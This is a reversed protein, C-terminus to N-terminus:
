LADYRSLFSVVALRTCTKWPRFTNDDWGTTIGNEAAWSIAKDFAPNNTLDKFGAKAKPEPSGAYRWLFTVIAARNCTNWPRFTNDAAWGTTIGEEAAWSIAKNFDSNETMDKFGAMKKPEPEGAMRWLFTVVAARNCDKMAGFTGDSYGTTIGSDAAWYVYDYYFQKEPDTVDSFLVQVTITTAAEKYKEAAAAKVTITATGAFGAEVTVKGQTDVTVKEKDSSYTLAGGSLNETVNIQASQANKTDVNLTIDEAKVSGDLHGAPTWTINGGYNQMVRKNWTENDYPYTATATVGYFQTGSGMSGTLFTPADGKFEISSLNKCGQFAADGISTVGAPITLGTLSSCLGFAYGGIEKLSEPLVVESLKTFSSFAYYGINTVGNEVVVKTVSDSYYGYDERIEYWSSGSGSITLVGDEYKWKLGDSSEGSDPLIKHELRVTYTGTINNHFGTSLYYQKGAELKQVVEFNTGDDYRLAKFDADYFYGYANKNDATYFRYFDTEKPVFSYCATDGRASITATTDTDLEIPKIEDSLTNIYFYVYNSNGYEDHVYCRYDQNSDVAIVNISSSTEGDLSIYYREPDYKQWQYTLEGHKCSAEAKLEVNEGRLAFINTSDEANAVTFENDVSVTFSVTTRNGYKDSVECYFYSYGRVNEVTYTNATAGEIPSYGAEGNKYWQYSIDGLSCSASVEMVANGGPEVKVTSGPIARATFSNEVYVYFWVTRSNKYEDSVVCHYQTRENVNEATCTPGVAGEVPKDASDFWQYNISGKNCSAEVEMVASEGPEVYIYSGYAASANLGNDTYVNFWVRVYNGYKDSVQCYYEKDGIVNEATYAAGTAGKLWTGRNYDYWAYTIEGANCTAEVEMTASEGPTIHIAYNGVYTASLNNEIHVYYGIDRSNGYKDSVRCYYETYGTINEATYTAGTEGEIQNWNNDNWVYWEYTIEGASCTAEVEMKVSEGPMISINNDGVCDANFHNEIYIHFYVETSNGYKDTAKCIYRTYGTINEATYTAGTEGEIQNWDDDYWEYTIEGASCTAEVEMKVSEGPTIYIDSDGVPTARLNNEINIYFWVNTSNGYKDSVRCYYETYGTINEATYAAGTEGEIQNWNNDNWVYWEYTIEGASCTAEVEMTVSEGPMISIDNDGVYDANFHNEIYIYFYVETSNGYKDTAKCIYRTYGTVNEATYTAGTEGEIRNWNNDYWEYTIEGASCTAEVEMKVSEGPAIYIENDGVPTARLNNEIYIYFWVNTSNGYKDSVRCNYQTYGTINEATYTAGTEGEIQNGDDDYWAYTIEGDSCTAEVEMTASEGPAIYIDSDGVCTASLNNEIHIYFWVNTSNGYKDSVRCYYETYGTINEATYAAGTEGEIQNGDDDYWAYTIEGDNCTAEVEMTASGGMAVYINSEVAQAELENDFYKVLRVNFSGADNDYFRAGFYYQVGAELNVQLKFNNTGSGDDDSAIEEFNVDYLYGYTDRDATSYFVYDDSEEPIFSFYAIDGYNPIVATTDTDLTIAPIEKGTDLDSGEGGDGVLEPVEETYEEEVTEMEEPFLFEEEATAASVNLADDEIIEESLEGTVDADTEEQLVFIEDEELAPEEFSEEAIEAVTTEEATWAPDVAEEAIEGLNEEESLLMDQDFTLEGAWSPTGQSFILTAALFMAMVKRRM